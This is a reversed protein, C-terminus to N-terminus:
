TDKINKIFTCGMRRVGDGTTYEGYETVAYGCKRYLNQAPINDETTHIGIKRFGKQKVFEESFQIAYSGVGQRQHKDSVVLMSIWAMDKNLLGNIRLWALPVCGRCVLFNQEDEDNTSLADKWEDLSMPKGHLSEINQWYFKMVFVAEATKAPVVSYLSPLNLEVMNVPKYQLLKEQTLIDKEYIDLGNEPSTEGTRQFGLAEWFPKGTVPDATLYMRQVGHSRFLSEIREFMAKGYGKRRFEPIVYYEMIYGYEPKIFGQHGLHDVKCYFFGILIESEYCLELHRDHPGQMNIMGQTVRQIFDLPTERKQHSDLEKNYPIMLNLLQQYQSENGKTVQVFKLENM